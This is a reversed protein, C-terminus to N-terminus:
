GRMSAARRDFDAALQKHQCARERHWQARDAVSQKNGLWLRVDAGYVFRLVCFSDSQLSGVAHLVAEAPIRLRAAIHSLHVASEVTYAHLSRLAALVAVATSAWTSTDCPSIRDFDLDAVSAAEADAEAGLALRDNPINAKLRGNGNGNAASRRKGNTGNGSATNMPEREMAGLENPDDAGIVRANRQTSLAMAAGM